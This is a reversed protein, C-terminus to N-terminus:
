ITTEGAELEEETQEGQKAKRKSDREAVAKVYERHTEEDVTFGQKPLLWNGMPKVQVGGITVDQSTANYMVRGDKKSLTPRLLLQGTLKLNDTSLKSLDLTIAGPLGVNMLAAAVDRKIESIVDHQEAAGFVVKRKSESM